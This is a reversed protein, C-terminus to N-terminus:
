PKLNEDKDLAENLAKGADEYESLLYPQIVLRNYDSSKNSTDHFVVVAEYKVAGPLYDMFAAIAPANAKEIFGIQEGKRYVAVACADYQNDADRRLELVDGDDIEDQQKEYSHFRIGAVRSQPLTQRYTTM